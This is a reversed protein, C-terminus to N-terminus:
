SVSPALEREAPPYSRLVDQTDWDADGVSGLEPDEVLKGEVIDEGHVFLIRDGTAALDAFPTREHIALRSVVLRGRSLRNFDAGITIM